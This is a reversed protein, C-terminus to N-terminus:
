VQLLLRLLKLHSKIRMQTALQEVADADAIRIEFADQLAHDVERLKLARINCSRPPPLTYHLCTNYFLIGERGRGYM